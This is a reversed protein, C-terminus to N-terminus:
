TGDAEGAGKNYENELEEWTLMKWETPIGGFEGLMSAFHQIAEAKTIVKGFERINDADAWVGNPDNTRLIYIIGERPWLKLRSFALKVFDVFPAGEPLDHTWLDSKTTM